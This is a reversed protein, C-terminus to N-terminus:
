EIIEDAIQQLHMPIELGLMHPAVLLTQKPSFAYPVLQDIV